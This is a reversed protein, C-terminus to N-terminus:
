ATSIWTSAASPDGITSSSRKEIGARERGPLKGAYGNESPNFPGAIAWDHPLRVAQWASDDFDAKEAGPQEGQAFKWDGTFNLMQRNALIEAPRAPSVLGLLIFAAIGAVINRRTDM